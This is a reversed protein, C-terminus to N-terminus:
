TKEGVVETTEPIHKNTIIYGTQSDGAVESQYDRSVDIEKVSYSIEQEEEDYKDLHTFEAKWGNDESLIIYKDDVPVNNMLLQIKVSKPRKGDQNDTDDWKKEASINTYREGDVGGGAHINAVAYNFEKGSVQDKYLEQYWAKSNNKFEKQDPNTINTLYM